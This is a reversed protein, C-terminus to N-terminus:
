FIRKILNEPIMREATFIGIASADVDRAIIPNNIFFIGASKDLKQENPRVVFQVSNLRLNLCHVVKTANQGEM